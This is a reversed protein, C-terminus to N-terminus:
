IKKQTYIFLLTKEKSFSTKMNMKEHELIM